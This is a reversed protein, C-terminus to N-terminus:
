GTLAPQTAVPSAPPSTPPTTPSTVAVEVAGIDCASGQPRSVGREDTSV